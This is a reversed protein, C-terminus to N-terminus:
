VRIKTDKVTLLQNKVKEKLHIKFIELFKILYSTLPNKNEKGIRANGPTPVVPAMKNLSGVACQIAVIGSFIVLASFFKM